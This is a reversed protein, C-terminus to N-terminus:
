LSGGDAWAAPPPTGQCTPCWYVLRPPQGLAHSRIRTGCRRCPRGARRYVWREPRPRLGASAGPPAGLADPVTVRDGGDLNVRLLAHSTTLVLRLIEDPVSGVLTFPDLRTCFLVESRYVNGIGAVASQDLLADGITWGARDHARLRAVGAEVDPGDALLDPGLTSLQPHMSLARSDLLEVRPAAFCVAVCRDTEIVAVASSAARRWREGPAYRHWSGKIGLHTHLTLGVDFGVLLHKGQAAVDQVRSGVVRALRAGGPRGRAALVREGLLARRLVEATRFLTDGEPM